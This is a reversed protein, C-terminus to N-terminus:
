RVDPSSSTVDRGHVHVTGGHRRNLGSCVDFTTTKGAGNPGILGTIVGVPAELTVGDVAALGGFRVTIAEVELGQDAGEPRETVAETPAATPRGNRRGGIRDLFQRLKPSMPPQGGQVAIFIASLGFLANLWDTTHAGTLYGPLIAAVAPV